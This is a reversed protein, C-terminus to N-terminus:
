VNVPRKTQQLFTATVDSWTRLFEQAAKGSAAEARAAALLVLDLQQRLAQWEVGEGQCLPGYVGRYFPHDTNLVVVLQGERRFVNFFRTGNAGGLVMSYRLGAHSKGDGEKLTLHPHRRELLEFTEKLQPSCHIHPLNPLLRDQTAAIRESDALRTVVKVQEHLQRIRRNLSKAMAELDPVIAEALSQTPRIQQKTHTIGFVEDLGPDFSIECRWWDDYNEKRKDGMLFWGYDIERRARIVSVGAGNMIGLERKQENPLFHWEEVPLESFRVVVRGEATGKGDPLPVKVQYELPQGVLRGGRTLSRANLFLPDIGKVPEGNIEIRVGDWIYYRFVRGLFSHIKKSITSPRRYDLRDCRQWTIITGTRSKWQRAFKPVAVQHPKPVRSLNGAAIDDIDLFTAFATRYSQWSCAELRRAQSFSSNPLGM